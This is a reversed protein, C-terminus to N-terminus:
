RQMRKLQRGHMEIREHGRPDLLSQKVFFNGFGGVVSAEITQPKQKLVKAIAKARRLPIPFAHISM